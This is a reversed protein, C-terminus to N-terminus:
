KLMNKHAIASAYRIIEASVDVGTTRTIGELGPNANMEMIVPGEASRLIDVGCIDLGLVKTGRVALNEEQDTLKISVADGGLSLNSRFDGKKATRKMSAIVKDGVVFARYDSGDAEAVYEQILLIGSFSQRWLIDLASYLSRRSEIIVVERGETGFPTKVIVPYGGVKKVAEDLYEFRRIVITKPVPIKNKTLMQLTRLKNKARAIPLYKNIVPIGMLQFQKIISIELDVGECFDFRPILVDCGKVAKNKYLIEARRNDFFLQCNEVKYVVPRHGIAKIADSLRRIPNIPRGSLAGTNKPLAVNNDPQVNAFDLIGIRLQKMELVFFSPIIFFITM